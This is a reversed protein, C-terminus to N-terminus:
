DVNSYCHGLEYIVRKWLNTFETRWSSSFVIWAKVCFVRVVSCHFFWDYYHVNYLSVTTLYNKKWRKWFFYYFHEISHVIRVGHTNRSRPLHNKMSFVRHHIPLRSYRDTKPHSARNNYLYPRNKNQKPRPSTPDQLKVTCFIHKKTFLTVNMTKM